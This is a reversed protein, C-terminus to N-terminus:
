TCCVCVYKTACVHAACLWASVTKFMHVWVCYSTYLCLLKYVFVLVVYQVYACISECTCVCVKPCEHPVSAHVHEICACGCNGYIYRGCCVVFTICVCVHVYLGRRRSCKCVWVRCMSVCVCAGMCAGMCVYVHAYVHVCVRVCTCLAFM